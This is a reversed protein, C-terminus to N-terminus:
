ASESMAIPPYMKNAAFRRNPGTENSGWWRSNELHDNLKAKQIKTVDLEGIVIRFDAPQIVFIGFLSALRDGPFYGTTPSLLLFAPRVPSEGGVLTGGIAIPGLGRQFLMHDRSSQPIRIQDIQAKSQQTSIRWCGPAGPSIWFSFTGPGVMGIEGERHSCVLVDPARIEGARCDNRTRESASPRNRALCLGM